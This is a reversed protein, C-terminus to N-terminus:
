RCPDGNPSLIWKYFCDPCLPVGHTALIIVIGCNPQMCHTFTM